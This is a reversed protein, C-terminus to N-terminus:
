ERVANLLISRLYALFAGERRVEFVEIRKLARMLTVQVLDDTDATGRARAPLRGHAWRQLLPLYREFLRELAAEDGHRIRDVLVATSEVPRPSRLAPDDRSQPM